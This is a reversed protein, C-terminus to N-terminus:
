PGEGRYGGVWWAEAGDKDTLQGVKQWTGKVQM